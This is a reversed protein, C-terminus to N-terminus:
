NRRKRFLLTSFLYVEMQHPTGAVSMRELIQEGLVRNEEELKSIEEPSLEQSGEAGLSATFASFYSAGSFCGARINFSTGIHGEMLKITKVLNQALETIANPNVGQLVVPDSNVSCVLIDFPTVNSFNRQHFFTACVLPFRIEGGARFMGHKALLRDSPTLPVPAANEQLHGVSTFMQEGVFDLMSQLESIKDM